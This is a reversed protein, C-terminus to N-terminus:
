VYFNLSTTPNYEIASSPIGLPAFIELFYGMVGKIPYMGFVAGPCFLFGSGIPVAKIKSTDTM